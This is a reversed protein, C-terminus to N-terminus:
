HDDHNNGDKYEEFRYIIGDFDFGNFHAVARYRKLFEAISLGHKEAQREIVARPISVVINLGDVGLTRMKYRRRYSEKLEM